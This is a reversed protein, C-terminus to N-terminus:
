NESKVNESWCFFWSGDNRKMAFSIMELVIGHSKFVKRKKRNRAFVCYYRKRREVVISEFGTNSIKDLCMYCMFYRAVTSRSFPLLIFCLVQFLSVIVCSLRSILYVM